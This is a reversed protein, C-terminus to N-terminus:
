VSTCVSKVFKPRADSVLVGASSATRILASASIHASIMFSARIVTWYVLKLEIDLRDIERDLIQEAEEQTICRLRCCLRAGRHEKDIMRKGAGYMLIGPTRTIAM